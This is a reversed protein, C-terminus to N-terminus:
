QNGHRGPVLTIRPCDGVPSTDMIMRCGYTRELLPRTLVEAPSGMGVIDGSKLLLLRDGYMAALNIDHSVMIVTTGQQTKLQEMLDMIKVQYSLDLSATPEDLLIVEPKQCIAKAIMVRQREGGSLENFKRESLRAVGTFAMAEGAIVRDTEGEVGLAGLYPARGMMVVEAVTYPLDLSVMQPVFAVTRALEKRRYATISQGRISVTGTDIRGIGSVTKLLTTKGSGNPGLIVFFTGKEVAFSLGKLVPTDRYSFALNDIHVAATM